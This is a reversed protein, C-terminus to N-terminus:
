ESLKALKDLAASRLEEAQDPQFFRVLSQLIDAQFHVKIEQIAFESEFQMRDEPSGASTINEGPSELKIVEDEDNAEPSENLLDVTVDNELSKVEQKPARRITLDLKWAPVKKGTTL